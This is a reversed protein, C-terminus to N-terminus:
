TAQSLRTHDGYGWAVVTGNSKLAVSHFRGATVAVVNSLGGPVESSPGYGWAAVTGEGTLAVSHYWGASVAVANTLGAPAVAQSYDNLGWGAVTNKSAAQLSCLFAACLLLSPGVTKMRPVM